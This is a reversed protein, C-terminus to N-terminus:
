SAARLPLSRFAKGRKLWARLDFAFVGLATVGMGTMLARLLLPVM